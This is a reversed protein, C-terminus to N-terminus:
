KKLKEGWFAYFYLVLDDQHNASLNKFFKAIEEYNIQM